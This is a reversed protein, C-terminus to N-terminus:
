FRTFIKVTVFVVADVRLRTREFRKQGDVRVRTCKFVSRFCSRIMRQLFYLGAFVHVLLPMRCLGQEQMDFKFARKRQRMKALRKVIETQTSSLSFLRIMNMRTKIYVRHAFKASCYKVSDM